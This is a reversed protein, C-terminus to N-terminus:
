SRESSSTRRAEAALEDDRHDQRQRHKHDRHQRQASYKSIPLQSLRVKEGFGTTTRTSRRGSPRRSHLPEGSVPPTSPLRVAPFARIRVEIVDTILSLARAHVAVIPLVSMLTPTRARGHVGAAPEDARAVLTPASVASACIALSTVSAWLPLAGTWRSASRTEATKTGTTMPRESAVRPRSPARRRTRRTKANVAATDTSM